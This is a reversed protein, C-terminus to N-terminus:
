QRNVYIKSLLISTGLMSTRSDKEKKFLLSTFRPVLWKVPNFSHSYYGRDDNKALFTM